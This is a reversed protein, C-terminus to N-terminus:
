GLRAGMMNVESRASEKSRVGKRVDAAGSLTGRDGEGSEDEVLLRMAGILRDEFGSALATEAFAYMTVNLFVEVMVEALRASQSLPTILVAPTAIALASLSVRRM